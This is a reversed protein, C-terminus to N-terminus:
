RMRQSLEGMVERLREQSLKYEPTSKDHLVIGPHDGPMYNKRWGLHDDVLQGLLEKFIGGNEAEDGIFLGRYDLDSM